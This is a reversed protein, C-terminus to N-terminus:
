MRAHIHTNNMRKYSNHACLQKRMCTSAKTNFRWAVRGKREDEEVVRM